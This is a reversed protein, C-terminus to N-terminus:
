RERHLAPDIVAAMRDASPLESPGIWEVIRRVTREPDRVLTPYDVELLSVDPRADLMALVQALHKELLPTADELEEGTGRSGHLMRHQSRTVESLPRRMLLIRYRYGSPLSPLLPTVLKVARGAAEAIREPHRSLSKAAEWELYGRPNSADAPRVGDTLIPFGGAALLQMMLSTGSRPLGSVVTVTAEASGGASTPSPEARWKEMVAADPRPQAYRGRLQPLLAQRERRIAAARERWPEGAIGVRRRLRALLRCAALDGPGARITMEFALLAQELAGARLRCRALLRHARWMSFDLAVARRASATAEEIRGLRLLAFGLREHGVADEPDRDLRRRYITAAMEWAGQREHVRGELWWRGPVNESVGALRRLAEGLRGARLRREAELLARGAPPLEERDLVSGLVEDARVPCGIAELCRSFCLAYDPRRPAAATLRELLPLADPLRGEAILARALVWRNECETRAADEALRDTPPEIYGLAALQDLLRANQEPSLFRDERGVEVSGWSPIRPLASAEALAPLLVKGEWDRALPLDCLRLVTPAVDLLGAGAISVGKGLKPGSAAFIGQRRHWVGIGAPVDPVARPRLHDPHFGHDSVIVVHTEPPAFALLRGLLGDFLVYIGDIVERFIEREVTPTGDMAPPHCAMFLHSLDDLARLYLGIFDWPRNQLIWLTAAQLTLAEALHVRLRCLRLLAEGEAERFRPCVMGLLDERISEPQVRLGSFAPGLEPPSIAGAPPPPWREGPHATPKPYLDSLVCGHALVEGHTALWGLVHTHRGHADLLNWLAPCQRSSSLVPQAQGTLPNVETFGFVGHTEALRGTAISTWLMPSIMPELSALNGSVGNEVIGRLYPMRGAEMLPRIVKWDASDWGLLLM